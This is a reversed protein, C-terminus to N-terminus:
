AWQSGNFLEKLQRKGSINEPKLRQRCNESERGIGITQMLSQESTLRQDAQYERQVLEAYAEEFAKMIKPNGVAWRIKLRDFLVAKSIHIHNDSYHEVAWQIKRM